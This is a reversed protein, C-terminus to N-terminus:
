TLHLLECTYNALCKGFTANSTGVLCRSWGNCAYGPSQYAVQGAGSGVAPISGIRALLQAAYLDRPFVPAGLGETYWKYAPMSSPQTSNYGVFNMFPAYLYQPAPM